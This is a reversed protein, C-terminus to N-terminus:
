LKNILKRKVPGTQAPAEGGRPGTVRKASIARRIMRRHSAEKKTMTVTQAPSDTDDDVPTPEAPLAAPAASPLPLPPSTPEVVPKAAPAPENSAAARAVPPAPPPRRLAGRALWAGGGAVLALAGLLV